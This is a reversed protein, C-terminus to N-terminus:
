KTRTEVVFSVDAQFPCAWARVVPSGQFEVPAPLPLGEEFIDSHPTLPRPDAHGFRGAKWYSSMAMLAEVAEIDKARPSDNPLCADSDMPEGEQGCITFVENNKETQWGSM